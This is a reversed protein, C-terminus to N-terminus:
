NIKTEQLKCAAVCINTRSLNTTLKEHHFSNLLKSIKIKGEGFRVWNGFSSSIMRINIKVLTLNTGDVFLDRIPVHIISVFVLVSRCVQPRSRSDAANVVIQFFFTDLEGLLVNFKLGLHRGNYVLLRADILRRFEEFRLRNIKLVLYFKLTKFKKKKM